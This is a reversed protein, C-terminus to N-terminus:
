RQPVQGLKKNPLVSDGVRVILSAEGEADYATIANGEVWDDDATITDIASRVM